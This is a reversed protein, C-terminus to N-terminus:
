TQSFCGASPCMAELKRGALPLCVQSLAACCIVVAVWCAAASWIRCLVVWDLRIALCGVGALAGRLLNGGGGLQCDRESDM